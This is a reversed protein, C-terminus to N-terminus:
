LNVNKKGNKSIIYVYHLCLSDLLMLLKERKVFGSFGLGHVINIEKENKKSFM